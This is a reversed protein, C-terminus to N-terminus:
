SCPAMTAPKASNGVRLGVGEDLVQYIVEWRVCERPLASPAYKVAQHSVFTLQVLLPKGPLVQVLQIDSDHTTSYQDTWNGPDRKAQSTSVTTLWADYDHRNIATFYRSLLDAVAQGYPSAQAQPSLTVQAPQDSSAVPMSGSPAPEASPPQSAGGPAGTSPPPSTASSGASSPSQRSSDAPGTSSGGDGGPPSTPALAQGALRQARGVGFAAGAGAVLLVALVTALVLTLRRGSLGM